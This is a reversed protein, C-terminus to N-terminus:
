MKSLKEIITELERIYDLKGSNDQERAIENSALQIIRTIEVVTLDHTTM